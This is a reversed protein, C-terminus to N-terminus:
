ESCCHPTQRCLCSATITFDSTQQAQALKQRYVATEEERGLRELCEVYGHLSWVNDPHQSPRILTYDFGLDARYVATAEKVQGQELLLAGLKKMKNM